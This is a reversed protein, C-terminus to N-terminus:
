TPSVISQHLSGSRQGTKAYSSPSRTNTRWRTTCSRTPKTNAQKFSICAFESADPCLSKAHEYSRPTQVVKSTTNQRDHIHTDVQLPRYTHATSHAIRYGSANTQRRRRQHTRFITVFTHTINVCRKNRQNTHRIGTAIVNVATPGDAIAHLHDRNFDPHFTSATRFLSGDALSTQRQRQDIAKNICDLRPSVRMCLLPCGWEQAISRRSHQSAM